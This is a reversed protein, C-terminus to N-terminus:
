SSELNSIDMKPKDNSTPVAQLEKGGFRRLLDVVEDWTGSLLQVHRMDIVMRRGRPIASLIKELEYQHIPVGSCIIRSLREWRRIPILDGLSLAQLSDRHHGNVELSRLSETNVLPQLLPFLKAWTDMRPPPNPLMGTRFNVPASCKVELVKLNSVLSRLENEQTPTPPPIEVSGPCSLSLSLAALSAGATHLASFLAAPFTLTPSVSPATTPSPPGKSSTDSWGLLLSREMSRLVSQYPSSGYFEEQNYWEELRLIRTRNSASRLEFRRAHPMAAIATAVRAAFSDSLLLSVQADFARRLHQHATRLLECYRLIKKEMEESKSERTDAYEPPFLRDAARVWFQRDQWLEEADASNLVWKLHMVATYRVLKAFASLDNAYSPDLRDICLRVSRVGNRITPHSAIRELRSLSDPSIDLDLHIILLESSVECFRACTLRLTQVAQVHGDERSQERLATYDFDEPAGVPNPLVEAFIRFLLENPFDLIKM